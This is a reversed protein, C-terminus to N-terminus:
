VAEEVNRRLIALTTLARIGIGCCLVFCGSNKVRQKWSHRQKKHFQIQQRSNRNSNAARQWSINPSIPGLVKHFPKIVAIAKIAPNIFQELLACHTLRCFPRYDRGNNLGHKSDNNKHQNQRVTQDIFFRL